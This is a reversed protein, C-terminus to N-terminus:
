EPMDQIINHTFVIVKRADDAHETFAAINSTDTDTEDDNIGSTDSDRLVREWIDQTEDTYTFSFDAESSDHWQVYEVDLGKYEGQSNHGYGSFNAYIKDSGLAIGGIFVGGDKLYGLGHEDINLDSLSIYVDIEKGKEKVTVTGELKGWEMLAKYLALNQLPSDITKDMTIDYGDEDIQIEGNEDKVPVSYILRGGLDRKLMTATNIDNIAEVLQRNLVYPNTMATRVLNLRGLELEQVYEEYGAVVACKSLGDMYEEVVMPVIDTDINNGEEDIITLTESAVPKVCNNLDLLPIGNEDRHLIWLDGFLDVQAIDDLKNIGLVNNVFILADVTLPVEKSMAAALFSAASDLVRPDNAPDDTGTLTFPAVAPLSAIDNDVPLDQIINHMFTIVKRADDALKAFAVINTGSFDESDLVREWVDATADFYVRPDMVEDYNLNYQVFDISTKHYREKSDYSVSSFDAYNNYLDIGKDRGPTGDRLYALDGMALDSRIELWPAPIIEGEEGRTEIGYGAIRGEIILAMYLALNELPSDITSDESLTTTEGTLEDLIETNTTLILRGALDLSISDAANINTIAEALSRALVDPNNASSRVVNIRGIDVELTYSEFEPDVQCEEALMPVINTVIPIGAEDLLPKGQDDLVAIPESALPQECGNEDLIPLGYDDRLLVWLDGYIDQPTGQVENIGLVSNVFILNDVTIENEKGSAAALFSAASPLIRSDLPVDMVTNDVVSDDMVTTNDKQCGGMVLILILFSFKVLHLLLDKM